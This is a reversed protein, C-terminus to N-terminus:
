GGFLTQLEGDTLRPGGRRRGGGAGPGGEDEDGLTAAAIQRKKEQLALIREEVTGAISLRVVRVPRHQGIRHARDVAQEEAFPNWWPECLVVTTAETLNLGVGCKLSMLLVPPGGPARFSDIQREREAMSQGGDVRTTGFGGRRLLPQLLDLFTTYSSFVLAKATPDQERMRRVEELCLMMKTSAESSEPGTAAEAEEEGQGLALAMQRAADAFPPLKRLPFLADARLPERCLPCATEEVAHARLERLCEDCYAHACHTLTCTDVQLGEMCIPCDDEQGVREGGGEAM